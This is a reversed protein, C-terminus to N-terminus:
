IELLNRSVLRINYLDASVETKFEQKPAEKATPSSLHIQAYSSRKNIPDVETKKKNLVIEAESKKNDPEQPKDRGITRGPTEQM